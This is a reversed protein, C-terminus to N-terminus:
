TVDQHPQQFPHHNWSDLRLDFRSDHPWADVAPCQDLAFQEEHALRLCSQVGDETLPKLM